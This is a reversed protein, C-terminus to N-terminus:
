KDSRGCLPCRGKMATDLEKQAEDFAEEEEEYEEEAGELELVCEELLAVSKGEEQKESFLKELQTLDPIEISAEKGEREMTEVWGDLLKVEVQENRVDEALRLVNEGVLLVGDSEKQIKRNKEAQGLLEELEDIAAYEQEVKEQKKEIQALRRDAVIVWRKQDVENKASALRMDTVSVQSKLQRVSGDLHKLVRDILDLNVIKNLQRAVEGPTLTFWFLYDHQTQFNLEDMNLFKEVPEPVNNGFAFFVQKDLAYTNVSTSRTRSITKKDVLIRVKAPDSQEWQIMNTGAPRNLAVWRIARLLNSKGTDSPGVFTTVGKDFKIVTNDHTRFKKVQIAKIMCRIIM